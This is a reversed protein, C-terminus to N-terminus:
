GCSELITVPLSMAVRPWAPVTAVQATGYWASRTLSTYEAYLTSIFCSTRRDVLSTALEAFRTAQSSLEQGKIAKNVALMLRDYLDGTAAPGNGSASKWKKYWRRIPQGGQASKVSQVNVWFIIELDM